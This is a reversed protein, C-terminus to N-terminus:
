RAERTDTNAQQEAQRRRLEERDYGDIYVQAARGVPAAMVPGTSRGQVVDSRQEVMQLLILNSACGPPLLPQFDEGVGIDDQAAPQVCADPVLEVRGDARTIATYDPSYRVPDLHTKCGALLCLTMIVPLRPMSSILNM